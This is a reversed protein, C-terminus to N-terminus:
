MNIPRPVNGLQYLVDWLSTGKLTGWTYYTTSGDLYTLAIWACGQADAHGKAITTGMHSFVFDYHYYPLQSSIAPCYSQATVQVGSTIQTLMKQAQQTFEQAYTITSSTPSNQTVTIQVKDANGVFLPYAIFRIGALIAVLAVVIIGFRIRRQKM